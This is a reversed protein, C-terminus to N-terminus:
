IIITYRMGKNPEVLYNEVSFNVEGGTVGDDLRATITHVGHPVISYDRFYVL